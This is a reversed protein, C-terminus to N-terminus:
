RFYSERSFGSVGLTLCLSCVPSSECHPPSTYPIPNRLGRPQSHVSVDTPVLVIASAECGPSCLRLVFVLVNGLSGEGGRM